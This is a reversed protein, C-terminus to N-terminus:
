GLRTRYMSIPAQWAGFVMAETFGMAVNISLMAENSEANGTRLRTVDPAAERLWRWMEAKLWRGIGRRRHRDLVVTDWQWSAAPRYPNVHITTHGVPGGDPDVAFLNMIDTGLARRADEDERIDDADLMVDNVDLDDMPADNMATRSRVWADLHEDPCPGIWRVLEVDAARDMRQDVWTTMLAEDVATVDLASMRETYRLPAGLSTWFDAEADVNPGWGMLSTRDDAEAIDLIASLAVQGAEHDHSAGFIEAAALHPNEEGTELELHAVVRVRDDDIVTVREHINGDTRDDTAFLRLEAETMPPAAPDAAIEDRQVVALASAFLPDDLDILPVVHM